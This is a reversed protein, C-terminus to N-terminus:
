FVEGWVKGNKIQSILSKDVEFLGAIYSLPKNESLLKKIALVCKENLKVSKPEYSVSLAKIVTILPAVHKNALTYKYGHNSPTGSIIDALKICGIERGISRLDLRQRHQTLYALVEQKTM